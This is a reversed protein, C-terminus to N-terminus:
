NFLKWLSIEWTSRIPYSECHHRGHQCYPIVRVTIDGMNVTHSLEWLSCFMEKQRSRISAAPTKIYM